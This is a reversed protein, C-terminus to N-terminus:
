EESPIQWWQNHYFLYQTGDEMEVFGNEGCSIFEGTAKGEANSSVKVDLEPLYVELVSVDKPRSSLDGDAQWAFFRGLEDKFEKLAEADLQKVGQQTAEVKKIASAVSDPMDTAFSVACCLGTAVLVCLIGTVIYNKGQM